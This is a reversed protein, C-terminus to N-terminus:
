ILLGLNEIWTKEYIYLGYMWWEIVLNGYSWKKKKASEFEGDDVMADESFSTLWGNISFLLAESESDLM